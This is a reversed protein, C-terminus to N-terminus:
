MVISGLIGSCKAFTQVGCSSGDSLNPVAVCVASIGSRALVNVLVASHTIAFRSSSCFSKAAVFTFSTPCKKKGDRRFSLKHTGSTTTNLKELPEKLLKGRLDFVKIGNPQCISYFDFHPFIYMGVYMNRRPPQTANRPLCVYMCVKAEFLSLHYLSVDNILRKLRIASNTLSNWRDGKDGM